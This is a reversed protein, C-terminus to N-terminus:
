FLVSGLMIMGFIVLAGGILRLSSVYGRHSLFDRFFIADKSYYEHMRRAGFLLMFGGGVCFAITLFILVYNLTVERSLM